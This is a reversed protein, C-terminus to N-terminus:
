PLSAVDPHRAAEVEDVRGVPTTVPAAHLTDPDTDALKAIEIMAEIFADLTEKSETETPEIMLAEEVILPFYVTPPHFGRDILAKAVDLAHVGKAALRGASLVCEHLCVRDFSQEYHGKLRVRLYNANIVANESIRRLGQRGLTLLFAYARLVVAFNGYFPAIHGISREEHASDLGFTGDDHKVVRPVPLLPVLAEAVGVPGAGPGGGGHPTSFTKHLNLHMIDFGLDGPRVRGILANLNAGDAYILGGAAHVMRNIERVNPDYLGLTNPLTLMLGATESGLSKELAKMDVNGLKDTKVERTRFGSLTASAPNTGHASDPILITDRKTGLEKHYAAILMLGTFEGHAGALPQMTFDAFGLIESYLRQSEHIVALAGQVLAVGGKLQPLLPHLKSFGPLAALDEHFRPNYKMTCSGLPYFATEIAMNRRSLNVFHRIVELESLEPLAAEESRKLAEPVAAAPPVDPEPLTSGRRGLSGKEFILKV